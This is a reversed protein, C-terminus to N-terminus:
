ARARGCRTTSSGSSASTTSGTSSARTTRTASRSAARCTSTAALDVRLIARGLLASRSAGEGLQTPAVGFAIRGPTNQAYMRAAAVILEPEVGTVESTREPTWEAAAAKVEDFGLCWKEVFERDYIDEEIM